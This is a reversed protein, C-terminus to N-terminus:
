VFIHITLLLLFYIPYFTIKLYIKLSFFEVSNLYYLTNTKQEMCSLLSRTHIKYTSLMDHKTQKNKKLLETLNKDLHKIIEAHKTKESM